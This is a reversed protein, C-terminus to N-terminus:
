NETSRFYGGRERALARDKGWEALHGQIFVTASASHRNENGGRGAGEGGERRSSCGAQAM